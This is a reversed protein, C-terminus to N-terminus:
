KGDGQKLIEIFEDFKVSTILQNIRKRSDILNYFYHFISKMKDVDQYCINLLFVIKVKDDGWKIADELIGVAISSRNSKSLAHPIAVFNGISTAMINERVMVANFFDDKVHAIDLLTDSMEKIIEIPKKRKIQPFFISQEFLSQFFFFEFEENDLEIIFTKIKKFEDDNLLHSIEIYPVPANDLPMSSIIFEIDKSFIEKIRYTPYVGEIILEPFLRQIKVSLLNAGAIGLSCVIAIKKKSKSGALLNREIAAIFFLALYGLENEEIQTNMYHEILDKSFIAMDVASPYNEKIENLNIEDNLNNIILKNEKKRLFYNLNHILVNDYIYKQQFNHDINIILQNIFSLHTEEANFCTLSFEDLQGIIQGLVQAEKKCFDGDLIKDLGSSIKLVFNLLKNNIEFDGRIKHQNKIRWISILIYLKLFEFANNSINLDSTINIETFLNEVQEDIEKHIINHFMIHSSLTKGYTFIQIIKILAFRYDKEDGQIQLGYPKKKELFLHYNQLWNEVAILEKEVTSNSLFLVDAIDDILIHDVSLLLIRLIQYQTEIASLLYTKDSVLDNIFNKLKPTDHKDICYGKGQISLLQINQQKLEFTLEKIDKRITRSSISFVKALTESTVFQHHSLFYLMLKHKRQEIKM